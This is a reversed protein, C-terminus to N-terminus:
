QKNALNKIISERKDLLSKKASDDARAIMEDLFGVAIMPDELESLTSAALRAVFPPCGDIKAASIFDERAVELEKLFYLATFGRLYKLYWSNPLNNVGTTLIKMAQEPSANEWALMTGCFEYVHHAKPDLTAVLDCMHYLWKLNKDGRYHKGFYNIANFWLLDALTNRYGFSLAKLNEGNPLYRLEITQDSDSILTPSLQKLKDVCLVSAFLFLLFTIFKSM